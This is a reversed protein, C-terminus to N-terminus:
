SLSIPTAFLAKLNSNLRYFEFQKQYFLNRLEKLKYSDEDIEVLESEIDKMEKYLSRFNSLKANLESSVADQLTNSKILHGM